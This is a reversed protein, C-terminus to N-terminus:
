HSLIPLHALQHPNLQKECDTLGDHTRRNRHPHRLTRAFSSRVFSRSFSSRASTDSSFFASRNKHRERAQKRESRERGDGGVRDPVSSAAKAPRTQIPARRRSKGALALTLPVARRFRTKIACSARAASMCVLRRRSESTLVVFEVWRWFPGLPQPLVGPACSAGTPDEPTVRCAARRLQAGRLVRHAPTM